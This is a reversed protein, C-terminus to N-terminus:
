FGAVAKTGIIKLRRSRSGDIGLKSYISTLQHKVTNVSKHLRVAIEGNNCGTSALELLDREAATLRWLLSSQNLDPAALSEATHYEFQVRFSPKFIAERSASALSIAAARRNDKSHPIKVSLTLEKGDLGGAFRGLWDAKLDTCAQVIEEPIRFVQRPNYARAERSGFNWVACQALAESNGHLLELNWDLFMLAEPIDQASEMLWRLKAQDKHSPILRRLVTNIHPHLKKLFEIEAPKFEGQDKTRRIVVASSLQRRNWFGLVATHHWGYPEFFERFYESRRLEAPDQIIDSFRFLKIGQHSHIFPITFDMKWRREFWDVPVSANPSSLIRASKWTKPHDLFDLYAVTANNPVTDRLIAQTASWFASVETSGHLRLIRSQIRSDLISPEGLSVAPRLRSALLPPGARAGAGPVAGPKVWESRGAVAAPQEHAIERLPRQPPAILMAWRLGKTEPHDALGLQYLKEFFGQKKWMLFYRHLTSISGLSKPTARWAIQHRLVYLVASFIYRSDVPKRGGGDARRYVKDSPRGHCPLHPEAKSWLDDSVSSSIVTNM